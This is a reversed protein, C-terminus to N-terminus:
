HSVSERETVVALAAEPTLERGARRAAQAEPDEYSDAVQSLLAIQAAVLPWPRLGVRTRLGEAAGLATLGPIVSGRSLALWGFGDLIYSLVERSPRAELAALAEHLREEAAAANGAILEVFALQAISQPGVPLAEIDAALLIAEEIAKRAADVNGKAGEYTCLYNLAYALNALDGRRRFTAVAEEICERNRPDDLNFAPLSGAIVLRCRGALEEDGVEEALALAEQGKDLATAFDGAELDFFGDVHLTQARLGPEIDDLHPRLVGLWGRAEVVRDELWLLPWLSAMYSALNYHDHNAVCWLIAERINGWELDIRRKWDELGKGTGRPYMEVKRAYFEAHRHQMEEYEGSEQLAAVAYERLPGLLRMRVGTKPVTELRILSHAALTDLGTAVDGVEPGGAVAEIAELTWGDVFIGLRAFLTRESEALLQSSWDITSRLTRQRAPLDVMGASLDLVSSLRRVVDAPELLRLRAAALEIALPIGDLRRVIEALAPANNSDVTLDPRVARARDLLLRVAASEAVETVEVESSPLELPSVQYEQEISLHLAARSTVLMQLESLRELLRRLVPASAVVQEFNDLVLLFRRDRLEDVIVEEPSATGEITRGLGAVITEAVRAPDTVPALDVFALGDRFLSEVREVVAVALRTKGIGGPGTLNLL